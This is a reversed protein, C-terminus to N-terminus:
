CAPDLDLCPSVAKSLGLRSVRVTGILQEPLEDTYNGQVLFAMDVVLSTVAGFVLGLVGSAATSSGIDVDVELYHNGRYYNCDVAKGLLCPTSGVSQRIIWSGKPVSPILKLRSNRFTDDGDVFRHLLSGPHIPKKAVFYIVMSYHTTGPVQLNFAITFLGKEAAVQAACGKRCSLHDMRKSDKFWDLAVLQLLSEGAPIKSRDVLFRKSRVQFSNGSPISWCNCASERDDRSLTGHFVSSDFAHTAEEEVPSTLMQVPTSESLPKSSFVEQDNLQVDEDEESEEDPFLDPMLDTQDVSLSPQSSGLQQMRGKRGAILDPGMKAITHIPQPVHRDNRQAFWERLGAVSNLMQLLCYRKYFSVYGLGWGKLDFQMQHEVRARPESSGGRSKLPSITFGGSEIHARVCGPQPPCNVHDKSHFVVVYSGDDKRRWYRLYCLDRPWVIGTCWEFQLRHYLIATHGDVEEVLSGYHFTSDWEYRTEDMGVVLAFIDDCAADVVGVAKMARSWGLSVYDTDLIEEFIRLGNQCRVLRWYKKSGGGIEQSTQYDVRPEASDSWDLLPDLLGNQYNTHRGQNLLTREQPGQGQSEHDSSSSTQVNDTNLKSEAQTTQSSGNSVQDIVQEIAEKWMHADQVLLAAMTIHNSNDKKNYVSLVSVVRGHHTKLGRDEVRCNGDILLSRLPVEKDSPKRKYYSLVTSELVFYRKHFFSRGYKRRGYRVMWGELISKVM